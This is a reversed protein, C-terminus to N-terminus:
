LVNFLSKPQRQMQLILPRLLLLESVFAAFRNCRQQLEVLSSLTDELFYLEIRSKCCYLLIMRLPLTKFKFTFGGQLRRNEKKEREKYVKLEFYKLCKIMIQFDFLCM